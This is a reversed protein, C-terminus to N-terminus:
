NEHVHSQVDKILSASVGNVMTRNIMPHIEHEPGFDSDPHYAIVDMTSDETRFCHTGKIAKVGKFEEEVLNGDKDKVDPLILFVDGAKLPIDGWPTICWGRGRTILGTRISPHTHPTQDINKPFHLHNFCSDGKIVPPILLSDTCGDIYNLRGIKEIPGGKVFVGKYNLKEVIVGCGKKIKFRGSVCMYQHKLLSDYIRIGSETDLMEIEAIGEQAYIYSTSTKEGYVQVASGSWSHIKSKCNPDHEDLFHTANTLPFSNFSPNDYESM